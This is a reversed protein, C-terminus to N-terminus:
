EIQLRQLGNVAYAYECLTHLVDVGFGRGRFAPRLAIGIHATRNHTDIRWLLAEGLLEQAGAHLAARQDDTDLPGRCINRSVPDSPQRLDAGLADLLLKREADGGGLRLRQGFPCRGPRRRLAPRGTGRRM